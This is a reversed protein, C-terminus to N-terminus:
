PVEDEEEPEEEEDVPEEQITIQLQYTGSVGVDGSTNIQVTVPVNYTGSAGSYSSLDATITIDEGTIAEVDAATGFLTVNLQSTLIEVYKGAPPNIYEFRDTAVQVSTMDKFDITLTTRTVGSLNECGEPVIISFTHRKIDSSYLDMLDLKGLTIRNMGRLLGAEGSVTITGPQLDYNLNAERLGPYEQFDVTLKLEKTVYVPLTAQITGVTPHINNGDLLQDEEGYYQFTLAQSISESASEGIDLTVKVYSVPDIDEAQGRIELTDQSLQPQGASYGEALNGVLECVVDVTRHNLESINVLARNISYKKIMNTTYGEKSFGIQYSVGQTGATEVKSLDVVVQIDERELWAMRARSGTLTLDLSESSGEPLLMLGRDALGAEGIYTIPIESIKQEVLRPGGNNGFLDVFLWVAAALLLALLIYVMKQKRRGESQM